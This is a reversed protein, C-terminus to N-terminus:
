QKISRYKVKRNGDAYVCWGIAGGFIFIPGVLTACIILIEVFPYEAVMVDEIAVLEAPIGYPDDLTGNVDISGRGVRMASVHTFKM